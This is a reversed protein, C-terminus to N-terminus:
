DSAHLDGEETARANDVAGPKRGPRNPGDPGSKAWDSVPLVPIKHEDVPVAIAEGQRRVGDVIAGVDAREGVEAVLIDKRDIGDARELGVQRRAGDNGAAIVDSELLSRRGEEVRLEFAARGADGVVQDRQEDLLQRGFELDM